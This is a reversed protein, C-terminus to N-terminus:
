FTQPLLNESGQLLALISKIILCVIGYVYSELAIVALECMSERHPCTYDVAAITIVQFLYITLVSTYWVLCYTHLLDLRLRRVELSDMHLKKLSQCYTANEM